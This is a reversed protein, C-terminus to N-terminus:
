FSVMVKKTHVSSRVKKSIDKAYQDNLIARYPAIDNGANDSITDINDLIAIYRVNHEPFYRELYEGSKIYDRGLRSYDKTIVCNIKGCEIDKILRQFNPREFTTGSVGDDVYEDYIKFNDDARNIYNLILNRQNTISESELKRKDEDERSLRIYIGVNYIKSEFM